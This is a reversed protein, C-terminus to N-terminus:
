SHLFSGILFGHVEDDFVAVLSQFTGVQWPTDGRAGFVSPQRFRESIGNLSYKKMEHFAQAVSTVIVSLDENGIDIRFFTNGKLEKSNCIRDGDFIRYASSAKLKWQSSIVELRLHVDEELGFDDKMLMITHDTNNIQPLMYEKFANKSYVALILNM